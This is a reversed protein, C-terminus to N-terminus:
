AARYTISVGVYGNNAAILSASNNSSQRQVIVNLTTSNPNMVCIVQTYGSPMDNDYLSASGIGNGSGKPTNASTFPMNNITVEQGGNSSSIRIVGTVTVMHGVKVYSLLDNGLHLTVGNVMSPTFQGEEYDDLLESSGSGSSASFDIGHGDTGIVLNGDAITFNDTGSTSLSNSLNGSGDSKLFGSADAVPLKLEINANGTTSTPAQLSVSGGGSAANLKIKATM